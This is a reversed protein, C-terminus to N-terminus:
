ERNHKNGKGLAYCNQLLKQNRSFDKEALHEPIQLSRYLETLEQFNMIIQRPVALRTATIVSLTNGPGLIEIMFKFLDIIPQADRADSSGMTLLLIFEKKWNQWPRHLLGTETIQVHIFSRFRDIIKKLSASVHHFYVPTAFVLRDAALIKGSVAEWDDNRLSCRKIINCRLCGRCDKIVLDKVTYEDILDGADHAGRLLEQLLRTSNGNKRPSGNFAVLRM